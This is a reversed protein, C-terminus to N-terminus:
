FEIPKGGVTFMQLDVSGSHALEQKDSQGLLNKGLFIAMIYSHEAHKWQLKRLRIKGQETGKLIQGAFRREITDESCDYFAAIERNTCGFSALKQVGRSDIKKLPRGVKKKKKKM